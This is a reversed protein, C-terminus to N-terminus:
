NCKIEKCSYLTVKLYLSFVQLSFTDGLETIEAIYLGSYEQLPHLMSKLVEMIHSSQMLLTNCFRKGFIYLINWYLKITNKGFISDHNQSTEEDRFAELNTNHNWYYQPLEFNSM